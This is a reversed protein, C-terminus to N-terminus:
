PTAPTPITAHYTNNGEDSEAIINDPDATATITLPVGALATTGSLHIVINVREGPAITGDCTASEMAVGPDTSYYPQTTAITDCGVPYGAQASLSAADLPTGAPTTISALLTVPGTVAATGVNIVHFTCDVTRATATNCDVQPLLDPLRVVPVLIGGRAAYSVCDGANAFASGDARTVHEYGGKQCAQAYHSNGDGPAAGAAIPVVFLSLLLAFVVPGSRAIRSM